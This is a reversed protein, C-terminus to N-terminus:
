GAFSGNGLFFVSWWWKRKRMWISDPRYSNRLQDVEDVSNMKHNYDTNINLRLFKLKTYNNLESSYIKKELEVWKINEAIMSLFHVLKTDYFSVALQNPCSPDYRLVTTKVTGAEYM